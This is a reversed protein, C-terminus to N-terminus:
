QAMTCGRKYEAVKDGYKDFLHAWEIESNGEHDQKMDDNFLEKTQYDRKYNFGRFNRQISTYEM